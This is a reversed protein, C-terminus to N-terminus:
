SSCNKNFALTAEPHDYGMEEAYIPIYKETAKCLKEDFGREYGATLVSDLVRANSNLYIINDTNSSIWKQVDQISFEVLKPNMKIFSCFTRDRYQFSDVEKLAEFDKPSLRNRDFDLYVYCESLGYSFDTKLGRLHQYQLFIFREEDSPNDLFEGNLIPIPNSSAGFSFVLSTLAINKLLSKLM